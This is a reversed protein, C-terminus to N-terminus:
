NRFPVRWVLKAVEDTCMAQEVMSSSQRKYIQKPDKDLARDPDVTPLSDHPQQCAYTSGEQEPFSNRFCTGFKTQLGHSIELRPYQNNMRSAFAPESHCMISRQHYIRSLRIHAEEKWRRHRSLQQLSFSPLTTNCSQKSGAIINTSEPQLVQIAKQNATVPEIPQLYRPNRSVTPM